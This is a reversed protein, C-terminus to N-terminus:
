PEQITIYICTMPGKGYTRLENLVQPSNKQLSLNCQNCTERDFKNLSFSERLCRDVMFETAIHCIQQGHVGQVANTKPQVKNSLLLTTFVWDLLSQSGCEGLKWMQDPSCTTM